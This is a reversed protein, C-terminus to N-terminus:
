SGTMTTLAGTVHANGGSVPGLDAGYQAQLVALANPLSSAIVFVQDGTYSSQGVAPGQSAPPTPILSLRRVNFGYANTIQVAM